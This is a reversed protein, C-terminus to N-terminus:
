ARLSTFENGEKTKLVCEEEGQKMGSIETVTQGLIKKLESTGYM